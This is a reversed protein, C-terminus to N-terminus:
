PRQKPTQCLRYYGTRAAGVFEIKGGDKLTTLDRQATKVSCRFQEAVSPAKLQAGDALRQLIWTQRAGAADDRVDFVDRVDDNPVDSAGDTDTIDTIDKIAPPDAFQVTVSEAFRYGPGGSLIVEDQGAVISPVQKRLSIVVADRLDRIWGSATGKAGRRKAEAELDDGSYAVFAGDARRRSLLELVIRRSGSRPGSCIDVGSLEVRDSYFVLEGSVYSRSELKAEGPCSQDPRLALCTAEIHRRRADIERLLKSAAELQRSVVSAAMKARPDDSKSQPPGSTFVYSVAHFSEAVLSLLQVTWEDSRVGEPPIVAATLQRGALSDISQRASELEAQRGATWAMADKLSEIESHYAELIVRNLVTSYAALAAAFHQLLTGRETPTPVASRHAAPSAPEVNASRHKPLGANGTAEIQQAITELYYALNLAQHKLDKRAEDVAFMGEADEGRHRVTYENVHRSFEVRAQHLQDLRDSFSRAFDASKHFELLNYAEHSGIWERIVWHELVQFPADEPVMRFRVFSPDKALHTIQHLCHQKLNVAWECIDKALVRLVAAVNGERVATALQRHTIDHCDIERLVFERYEKEFRARQELARAEDLNDADWKNAPEFRGGVNRLSCSNTLRKDVTVDPHEGVQQLWHVTVLAGDAPITEPNTGMLLRSLDIEVSYSCGHEARENLHGEAYVCADRISALKNGAKFTSDTFDFAFRKQDVVCVYLRHGQPYHLFFRQVNSFDSGTM